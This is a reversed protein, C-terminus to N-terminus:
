VAVIRPNQNSKSYDCTLGEWSYERPSCPDGNWNIRALNYHKKIEKM